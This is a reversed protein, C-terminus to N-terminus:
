MAEKRSPLSPLHMPPLDALAWNKWSKVLSAETYRPPHKTYRQVAQMDELDLVDGAKLPPLIGSDEQESDEDRSDTYLKLFGDFM